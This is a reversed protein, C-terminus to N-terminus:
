DGLLRTERFYILVSAGLFSLGALMLSGNTMSILAAGFLLVVVVAAATAPVNVM